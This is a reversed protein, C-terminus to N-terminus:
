KPRQYSRQLDVLWRVFAIGQGVLAVALEEPPSNPEPQGTAHRYYHCADAWDILSECSKLAARKATADTYATELFPRLHAQVTTKNLAIAGGFMVRFVNEVADFAARVAERSDGDPMLGQDAKLLFEKAAVFAAQSTGRIAEALNAQFASDIAPHVGFDDDLRYAASEETFIRVLEARFHQADQPRSKALLRGILTISCLIDRLEWKDVQDWPVYSLYGTRKIVKIGLEDELFHGIELEEEKKRAVKAFRKQVRMRLRESDSVLEDPRLYILSFRQGTPVDETM